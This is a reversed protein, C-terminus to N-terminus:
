AAYRFFKVAKRFCASILPRTLIVGIQASLEADPVNGPRPKTHRWTGM